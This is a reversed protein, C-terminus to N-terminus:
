DPIAIKSSIERISVTRTNGDWGVKLDFVEAIARVPVLTRGDIICAPQDLEVQKGNVSMLPNDVILIVKKGDKESTVM